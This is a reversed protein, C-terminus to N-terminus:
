FLEIEGAELRQQQIARRNIDEFAALRQQLIGNLHAILDRYHAEDHRQDADRHLLLIEQTYDQLLSTRDIIQRLLQNVVDGFQLSLIGEMVLKHIRESIDAIRQSQQTAKSNLAALEEWMSSMIDRSREAVSLDMTSSVQVLNGVNNLLQVIQELLQRIEASFSNTRKALTRVEDAVVAFGRGAAGARAAEIAANLALLDTQSTITNVDGLLKVASKVQVHINAFLRGIDENSRKMNVVKEIFEDIIGRTEDFFHRIGEAQHKDDHRTIEALLKEVLERLLEKQDQSGEKVSTLSHGLTDAANNVLNNAQQLAERLKDFQRVGQHLAQTTLSEYERMVTGLAASMDDRRHQARQQEMKVFRAAGLTALLSLGLLGQAIFVNAGLGLVALAALAAIVSGYLAVPIHNGTM